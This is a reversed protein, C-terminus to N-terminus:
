RPAELWPLRVLGARLLAEARELDRETDIHLAREEPVEYLLNRGGVWSTAQAAVFAGRWAYLTANIRFVDPVDQRRGYRGADPVLPALFGGDSVVATWIPNFDPRSVGVVGDAEPVSRLRALAGAIDEPLRAPSTPDLLLLTEPAGLADHAHRVVPWMATEDQALATPRALVDAGHERAVAAIEADETSVVIRDIEPCLAACRIGHAVLPLGGLERLNKRPVGKSGGRAPVLALVSV